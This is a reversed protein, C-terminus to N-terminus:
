ASTGADEIDVLKTWHETVQTDPTLMAEVNARTETAKAENPAEIIYTTVFTYRKM